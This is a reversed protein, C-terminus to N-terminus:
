FKDTVITKLIEPTDVSILSFDTEYLTNCKNCTVLQDKEDYKKWDVNENGCKTCFTKLLLM